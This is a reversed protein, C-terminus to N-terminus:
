EDENGGNQKYYGYFVHKCLETKCDYTLYQNDGLVIASEMVPRWTNITKWDTGSFFAKGMPHTHIWCRVPLKMGTLQGEDDQFSVFSSTGASIFLKNNSDVVVQVERPTEFAEMSMRWIETLFHEVANDPYLYILGKDGVVTHFAERIHAKWDPKKAGETKEYAEEVRWEDYADDIRKEDREADEIQKDSMKGM